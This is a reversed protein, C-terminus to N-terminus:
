RSDDMDETPEGVKESTPLLEVSDRELPMESAGGDTTDPPRTGPDATKDKLLRVSSVAESDARVFDGEHWYRAEGSSNVIYGAPIVGSTREVDDTEVVGQLPLKSKPRRREEDLVLRQEPSLFVRGISVSSVTDYIESDSAIVQLPLALLVAYSWLKM